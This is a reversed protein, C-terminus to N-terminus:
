SEREAREAARVDLWTAAAHAYLKEVPGHGGPEDHVRKTGRGESGATLRFGEKTDEIVYKM